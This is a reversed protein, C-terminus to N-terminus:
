SVFLGWNKICLTNAFLRATTVASQLNASLESIGIEEPPVNAVGTNMILISVNLMSEMLDANPEIPASDAAIEERNVSDRIPINVSILMDTSVDPLRLLFMVIYVNDVSVGPRTRYKSVLQKGILALKTYKGDICPMFTPEAVISTSLVYAQSSENFTALDNFYHYIADKDDKDEEYQLLEVIISNETQEDIFVEQHDPVERVASVDKYEIPLEAEIAGGYLKRLM